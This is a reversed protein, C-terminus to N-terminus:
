STSFRGMACMPFSLGRPQSLPCLVIRFNTWWLAGLFLAFNWFPSPTQTDVLHVDCLPPLFTYSQVGASPSSQENQKM